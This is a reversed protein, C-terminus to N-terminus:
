KPGKDIRGFLIAHLVRGAGLFIWSLVSQATPPLVGIALRGGILVIGLGILLAIM